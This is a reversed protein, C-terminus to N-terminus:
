HKSEVHSMLETLVPVRTGPPSHLLSAGWLSTQTEHEGGRSCVRHKDNMGGGTKGQLLEQSTARTISHRNESWSERPVKQVMSHELVMSDGNTAWMHSNSCKVHPQHSKLFQM